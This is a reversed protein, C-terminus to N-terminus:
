EPTKKAIIYGLLADAECYEMYVTTDTTGFRRAEAIWGPFGPLGGKRWSGTRKIDLLVSVLAFGREAEDKTFSDGDLIFGNVYGTAM